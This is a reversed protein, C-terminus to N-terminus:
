YKLEFKKIFHNMTEVTIDETLWTSILPTAIRLAEDSLACAIVLEEIYAVDDPTDGAFTDIWASFEVRSDSPEVQIIRLGKRENPCVLSYIPNGDQHLTGDAYKGNLWPEWKGDVGKSELIGACLKRWYDVALAYEQTDRLFDKLLHKVM